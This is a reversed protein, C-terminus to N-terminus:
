GYSENAELSIKLIGESVSSGVVYHYEGDFKLRKGVAPKKYDSAKMYLTIVAEYIGQTANELDNSRGSKEDFEDEDIIMLIEKTELTHLEGFEDPNMFIDLDKKLQAKFEM